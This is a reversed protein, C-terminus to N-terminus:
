LWLMWAFKFSSQPCIIDESSELQNEGSTRFTARTSFPIPHGNGQGPLYGLSALTRYNEEAGLPVM